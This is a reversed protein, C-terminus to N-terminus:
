SHTEPGSDIAGVGLMRMLKAAHGTLTLRAPNEATHHLAMLTADDDLPGTRAHLLVRDHLTRAVEAREEASLLAAMDLLGREGLQKGSADSAEMLADTYMVVIDSPELRIAFQEYNTPDIIGLPLNKIGVSSHGDGAGGVAGPTSADLLMWMGARERYLLPRPHGANCVILHDTPAFYTALLATAFKGGTDIASFAENLAVAFRTQDATNIHTRMLTRLALAVQAITEGHGAIDALVFRTILGAACSSIYYVDGGSADGAHPTCSIRVHNGPVSLCAEFAASGGWVEMCAIPRAHKEMRRAASAAELQAHSAVPPM